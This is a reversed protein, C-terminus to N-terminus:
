ENSITFRGVQYSEKNNIKYIYLGSPFEGTNIEVHKDNRTHKQQYIVKGTIDILEIEFDYNSNVVFTVTNGAPIPYINEVLKNARYLEKFGVNNLVMVYIVGEDTLAGPDEVRVNVGVLKDETPNVTIVNGAISYGTGPLVTLLLESQLDDVDEVNVDALEIVTPTSIYLRVTDDQALIEPADNINTVTIVFTQTSDQKGDTVKLKVVYDVEDETGVQDNSPTGSLVGQDADLHLWDPRIPASLTLIDGVDDDEAVINYVYPQDEDVETPPTSTIRPIDNASLVTIYVTAEVDVTGDYVNITLTDIGIDAFAPTGSLTRIAQVWTLWDPKDPITYTLEDLDADTANFVYSYSQFEWATDEPLSSIVPLDNVPNVTVNLQGTTTSDLDSLEINVSLSGNYNLDPTITNAAVSYDDGELVVLTMDAPGNDVDTYIIDILEILLSNDEDVDLAQQGTIIPADNVPLIDLIYTQEDYAASDDTVRVTVTADGDNNVPPTGSILGTSANVSLWGPTPPRLSFVMNDGADDDTAEVDYSYPQEEGVTTIETSTIVPADNTITITLLFRQYIDIIGDNVKIVVSDSGVDENLPTGSLTRTGGNFTLWDPKQDYSYVLVDGVDVDNAKFQYTYGQDETADTVPDTIFLPSYNGPDCAPNGGSGKNYLDSIEAQSLAKRFFIVEDIVGLFPFSITSTEMQMCGIALNSAIDFNFPDAVSKSATRIDSGSNTNDGDLYIKLNNTAANYLCVMHHWTNISYNSVDIKLYQSSANDKMYWELAGASPALDQIGIWWQADGGEDRALMVPPASYIKTPTKFWFSISFSSDPPIDFDSHDPVTIGSSATQTFGAARDVVGASDTVTGQQTGHHTGKSDYYTGGGEDLKWYAVMRSICTPEGSVYINFEQTDTYGTNTARVIVKGGDTVQEPTWTIVGTVSNITMEDLAKDLSYTPVDPIGTAEVDYTYQVDIAALTDPISTFFVQGSAVQSMFIGLTFLAICFFLQNFKKM